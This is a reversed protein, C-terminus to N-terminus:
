SGAGQYSSLYVKIQNVEGTRVLEAYPAAIVSGSVEIRREDQLYLVCRRIVAGSDQSIDHREPNHYIVRTHGLFMFAVMGAQDFLWAPLVPRFALCLKGDQVFFPREGAMMVNWISLFEATAGSLRAVFGNGHLSV